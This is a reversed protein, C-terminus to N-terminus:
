KSSGKPDNLKLGRHFRDTDQNIIRVGVADNFIRIRENNIDSSTVKNDISNKNKQDGVEIICYAVSTTGIDLGLIKKM